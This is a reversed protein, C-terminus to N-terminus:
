NILDFRFRVIDNSLTLSAAIIRDVNEISLMLNQEENLELYILKIERM